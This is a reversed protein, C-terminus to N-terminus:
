WNEFCRGDVDKAWEYTLILIWDVLWWVGCGGCTFGKAIGCCIFGAYCRGIGLGGVLIALLFVTLMSRREKDHCPFDDECKNSIVSCTKNDYGNDSVTNSAGFTNTYGFAMNGANNIAGFTERYDTSGSFHLIAIIGFFVLNTFVQFACVAALNRKTAFRKFDLSHYDYGM